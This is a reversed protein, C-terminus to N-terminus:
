PLNGPQFVCLVTQQRQQALNREVQQEDSCDPGSQAAAAAVPPCLGAAVVPAAPHQLQLTGVPSEFSTGSAGFRVPWYLLLLFLYLSLLLKWKGAYGKGPINSERPFIDSCKERDVHGALCLDTVIQLARQCLTISDDARFSM